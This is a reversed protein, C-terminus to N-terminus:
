GSAGEFPFSSDCSSVLLPLPGEMLPLPVESVAGSTLRTVWRVQGGPASPVDRDSDRLGGRRALMRTATLDGFLM